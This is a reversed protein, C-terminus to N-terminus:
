QDCTGAAGAGRGGFRRLSLFGIPHRTSGELALDALTEGVVSAFKFGHGSFGCGIVVQPWEPHRDIVFHADPTMTYMCTLTWLVRSAAGPLYRNLVAQLAAVEERSVERRITEPTCPEGADHRGFKIGQGPLAPFGYYDGEPVDLLYVPLRDAEFRAADDPTFHVNVVRQVELPVTLGVLVQPAWPGPTLVLRDAREIGTDTEVVVSDREVAWRRAPENFRLVAGAGRAVSQFAEICAEPDLVGANPEYIAVFDEPLRLAPFRRAAAAADLVEHPIGHRRASELAGSVFASEPRGVNLGGTIRLLQRGSIEELERWVEYARRVLPVYEPSEFYAERIIRSRGHSSGRTHLAEFAELGLVRAGRRALMAVTASGMAGLGVVIVDWHGM